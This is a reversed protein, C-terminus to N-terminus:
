NSMQTFLLILLWFYSHTWHPEQALRWVVVISWIVVISQVMSTCCNTSSEIIRACASTSSVTRVAAVGPHVCREESVDVGIWRASLITHQHQTQL